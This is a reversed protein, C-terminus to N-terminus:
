IARHHRRSALLALAIMALAACPGPEPILGAIVQVTADQSGAMRTWGLGTLNTDSPLGDFDESFLVDARCASAGVCGAMALAATGRALARIRMKKM